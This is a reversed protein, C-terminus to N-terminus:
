FLYVILLVAGLAVTATGLGYLVSHMLSAKESKRMKSYGYLSVTVIFWVILYFFIGRAM